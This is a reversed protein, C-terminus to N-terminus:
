ESIDMSEKSGSFDSFIDFEETVRRKAGVRNEVGDSYQSMGPVLRQPKHKKETVVRSQAFSRLLRPSRKLHIRFLFLRRENKVPGRRPIIHNKSSRLHRKCVGVHIGDVCDTQLM